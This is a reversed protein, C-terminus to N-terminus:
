ETKHSKFERDLTGCSLTTVMETGKAKHISCKHVTNFEITFLCKRVQAFARIEKVHLTLFVGKVFSSSM